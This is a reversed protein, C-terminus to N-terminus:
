HCCLWVSLTIWGRVVQVSRIM